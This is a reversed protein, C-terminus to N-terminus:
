KPMCLCAAVHLCCPYKASAKIVLCQAVTTPATEMYFEGGRIVESPRASAAPTDPPDQQTHEAVPSGAEAAAALAAQAAAAAKAAYEPSLVQWVSVCWAHPSAATPSLCLHQCTLSQSAALMSGTHSM